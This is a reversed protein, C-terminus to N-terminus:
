SFHPTKFEEGRASSNSRVSTCLQKQVEELRETQSYSYEKLIICQYCTGM